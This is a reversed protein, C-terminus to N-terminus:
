ADGGSIRISPVLASIFRVVGSRPGYTTSIFIVDREDGQVNELNKIILREGSEHNTILEDVAPDDRQAKELLVQIEEAQRKNFAAVGLSAGPNHRFHQLVNEVVVEAEGRNRGTRYTPAEIFTSHM